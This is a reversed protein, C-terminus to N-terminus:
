PQQVDRTFGTFADRVEYPREIWPFHGAGPVTAHRVNPGSYRMDEWLAQTVIRDETGSIILTPISAPWWTAAYTEDFNKASWVVAEVNYPMRALLDQGTQLGEATFNWPASSVALDRLTAPNPNAEYAAAAIDVEPLPNGETMQLFASMWRADPATSILVVGSVLDELEPISLIYMGGTSHGIVVPNTVAQAAEIFVGPWSPYPDDNADVNSGDGPLDVLWCTGPVDLARVLEALSESGIGPGGPLFLWNLDGDQRRLARLRVGSPTWREDLYRM